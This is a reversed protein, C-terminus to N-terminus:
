NRADPLDRYFDAYRDVMADLSFRALVRERAAVGHAQRLAPQEIYSLLATELASSDASDYLLGTREHEILEPNGGVRGAIVPRSTSMAELITNSIGENLSPLVFVDMARMIAPVDSRAGPLWVDSGIGYREIMEALERRMPGDGAIILRLRGHLKPHRELIRHFAALLASQNKVRDLRGVTGITLSSALPAWPIDAAPGAPRFVDTDVGNYLQRVREAPVAVDRELWGAIDRSMAVWRQIVPRCAKRIRLNRPALGQADDATWGHEGHVRLPVGAAVAVWQMDITGLNRTHVIQPRLRRLVRWMRQYAAPDKGAQKDISVVEVGARTIRRQFDSSGALCVIAHDFEGPPLRNVLNVLGNELGGYDLRYIIHAILAPM